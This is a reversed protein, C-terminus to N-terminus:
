MLTRGVTAAEFRQMMLQSLFLLQLSMLLYTRWCETLMTQRISTSSLLSELTRGVARAFRQHERVPSMTENAVDPHQLGSGTGTGSGPRASNQSDFVLASAVPAQGDGNRSDAVLLDCGPLSRNPVSHQTSLATHQTNLTSQQNNLTSQQTSPVSHQIVLTDASYQNDFVPQQTDDEDSGSAADYYDEEFTALDSM